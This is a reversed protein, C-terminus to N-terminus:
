IVGNVLRFRAAQRLRQAVWAGDRVFITNRDAAGVPQLSRARYDYDVATFGGALLLAHLAADDGPAAGRQADTEVILAKLQPDALVRGAGRLVALEHGEVDIKILVPIADVLLDDLRMAPVAVGAGTADGAIVSNASGRDVSFRLTGAAASLGLACCRVRGALENLLVNAQLAAFSEPVPEVAVVQAGAAGAALVTYSGLNAGVDIFLDGPRLLHLAFAMAAAEHLGCYWNGTVGHAGLTAYLRTGDIFPLAVPARGLRARLQWYLVRGVAALRASQNLPHGWVYRLLRLVGAIL